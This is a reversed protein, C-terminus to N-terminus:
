ECVFGGGCFVIRGRKRGILWGSSVLIFRVKSSLLKVEGVNRAKDVTWMELCSM